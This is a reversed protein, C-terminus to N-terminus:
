FSVCDAPFFSIESLHFSCGPMQTVRARALQDPLVLVRWANRCPIQYKKFIEGKASIQQVPHDSGKYLAALIYTLLHYM